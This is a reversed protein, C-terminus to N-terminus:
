TERAPCDPGGTRYGAIEAGYTVSYASPSMVPTM